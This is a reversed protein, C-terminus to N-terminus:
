FTLAKVSMKNKLGIRKQYVCIVKPMKENCNVRKQINFMIVMFSTEALQEVKRQTSCEVVM